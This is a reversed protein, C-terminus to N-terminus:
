AVVTIVGSMGEGGPGGGPECYYKYTGPKDFTFSFIQGIALPNSPFLGTDSRITRFEPDKNIWSVTTGAKVTLKQPHFENDQLIITVKGSIMEATPTGPIATPSITGEPTPTPKSKCGSLAAFLILIALGRLITRNTQFTQKMDYEKGRWVAIMPPAAARRFPPGADATL